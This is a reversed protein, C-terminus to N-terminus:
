AVLQRNTLTSVRNVSPDLLSGLTVHVTLTSGGRDVLIDVGDGLHFSEVQQIPGLPQSESGTPAGVVGKLLDGPFLLGDAPSGRVVSGVRVPGGDFAPGFPVIVGLWPQDDAVVWVAHQKEAVTFHYSRVACCDPTYATIDATVVIRQHGRQGQVEFSVPHEGSWWFPIPLGATHFDLVGFSSSGGGAEGQTNISVVLDDPVGPELSAARVEITNHLGAPIMPGTPIGLTARTPLLNSGTPWSRVPAKENAADFLVNWRAAVPDFSLVQLDVPEDGFEGAPPGSSIVVIDAVDSQELHFRQESDVKFNPPLVQALVPSPVAPTSPGTAGTPPKGGGSRTLAVVGAVLGALVAIGVIAALTRHRRRPAEPEEEVPQEARVSTPPPPAVVTATQRGSLGARLADVFAACDPFRRDPDKAMAREFVADAEPPVDPRVLSPRPPPDALHAAVVAVDADRRFPPGGTLCEFAVCALSYQDARGDVPRALLQEPAAYDVTGVFMGTRTVQTAPATRKMLGFDTLFARDEGNGREPSAVVLINSPKVDRHVLGRGHALDLAEGCQRVISLTGSPSLPGAETLRTRLDTGEVYRMALYLVGDVEGADYVPVINPHELTASLHAERTFRNRFDSDAAFQPSLVKLAVHRRLGLQEALYVIGMGGRGIEREVRYGGLVTGVRSDRNMDTPPDHPM